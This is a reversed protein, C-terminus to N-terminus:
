VTQQTAPSAPSLKRQQHELVRQDNRAAVGPIKAVLRLIEPMRGCLVRNHKKWTLHFRKSTPPM